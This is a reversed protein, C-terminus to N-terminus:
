KITALLAEIREEMSINGHTAISRNTSTTPSMNNTLTKPSPDNAKTPDLKAALAQSFSDALSLAPTNDSRDLTATDEQRFRNKFKQLKSTLELSHNYQDTFYTEMADAAEQPTIVKQSSHWEKLMAEYVKNIAQEKSGFTAILAEYQEPHDNIVPAVMTTIAKSHALAEREKNLDDKIQQMEQAYKKIQTEQDQLKAQIPDKPVSNLQKIAHETLQQYVKSPDLGIDLLAKAMDTETTLAGKIANARNLLDEAEAKQKAIKRELKAMDAFKRASGTPTKAQETHAEALSAEALPEASAPPDNLTLHTSPKEGHLVSKNEQTKAYEIVPTALPESPLINTM